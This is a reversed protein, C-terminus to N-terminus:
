AAMRGGGPASTRRTKVGHRGSVAPPMIVRHVRWSEIAVARVRVLGRIAPFRLRAKTRRRATSGRVSAPACRGPGRAVGPPEPCITATKRL